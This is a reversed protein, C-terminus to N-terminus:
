RNLQVVEDESALFDLLLDQSAQIDAECAAGLAEADGMKIAKIMTAHLDTFGNRHDSKLLDAMRDSLYRVYPGSRLWLNEIQSLLVPSGAARYVQFHFARNAATMEVIDGAAASQRHRALIQELADIDAQTMRPGALRATAGEIIIRARSIDRLELATIAPVYATGGSSIRLANESALRRLAERVPMHSTNFRESLSAITFLKRAEFAGSMLADRLQEYVLDHVTKRGSVPKLERNTKKDEIVVDGGARVRSM